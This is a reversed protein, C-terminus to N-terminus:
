VKQKLQEIEDRLAENAKALEALEIKDQALRVAVSSIAVTLVVFILVPQVTSMLQLFYIVSDMYAELVGMYEQANLELHKLVTKKSDSLGSEDVITNKSDKGKSAVALLGYKKLTRNFSMRVQEAQQAASLASQASSLVQYNLVATTISFLLGIGIGIGIATLGKKNM